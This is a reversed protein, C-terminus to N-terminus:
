YQSKWCFRQTRMCVTIFEFRVVGGYAAPRSDRKTHDLEITLDYFIYGMDCKASGGCLLLFLFM